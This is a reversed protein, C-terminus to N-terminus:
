LRLSKRPCTSFGRNSSMSIAVEHEHLEKVYQTCAYQVGQDSHHILGARPTRTRLAMRLAELTLHHDIRKAIGWGVVRRSFVDLLVALFVFGTLIRIYTIDAVWVQNVDTVELGKLLNPYVPFAHDSDTTRIFRRRIYRFLDYKHMVRLVRKGNVRLGYRLLLQARLTRYGWCSYNAQLTEITDRLDADAQERDKRPVKPTYYYTSE